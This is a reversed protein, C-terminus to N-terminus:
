YEDHSSISQMLMLTDYYVCNINGKPNNQHPCTTALVSAQRAHISCKENNWSPVLQMNPVSSLTQFVIITCKSYSTDVIM